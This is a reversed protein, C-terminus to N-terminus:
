DSASALPAESEHFVVIIKDANVYCSYLSNSIVPEESTVIQRDEDTDSTLDLDNQLYHLIYAGGRWGDNTFYRPILEGTMPYKASFIQTRKPQPVQGIFSFCTFESDANITELDHAVHYAIYQEYENQNNVANAFTYVYTYHYLNCVILLLVLPRLLTQHKKTFYLLLIGLYFLFSGMALFIRLKLTQEKLIMLPLYSLFFVCIPSLVLFAINLIKGWGKHENERCYLFVSLLIASLSLLSLVIQYWGSAESLFRIIYKCTDIMNQFIVLISKPKIELTQSANYRWDSRSVYHNAIVTKYLIAGIGIGIIRIGELAPNMKRKQFLLFFINVVFLILCIAIPAPHLSMLAMALLSSYLFMKLKSVSNPISFIIFPCGLSTLAGICGCRYFLYEMAFPNTIIFLLVTLLAYRNSIYDLNAQAYLILAYSLFLIGLILPLPAPDTIPNGGCLALVVYETLPRGDAKIGLSGLLSWGLDDQFYINVLFVPFVYLFSLVFLLLYNTTYKKDIHYWKM